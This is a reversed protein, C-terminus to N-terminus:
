EHINGTVDIVKINTFVKKIEQQLVEADIHENYPSYSNVAIMSLPFSMRSYLRKAAIFSSLDKLDVRINLPHNFVIGGTFALFGKKLKQWSSGTIAGPFYIWDAKEKLLRCIEDENGYITKIDTEVIDGNLCYAILEGGLQLQYPTTPVSAQYKIGLVQERIENINGAAAGVVLVVDTIKESLCISRRDLSGDILVTSCGLDRFVDILEEQEKLTAPGVIETDICDLTKYLWLSKGIVRFPLKAVGEVSTSNESYVHEFSTFYVDRPLSVSPKKDNTVLDIDEGDRGTTTVGAVPYQTGSASCRKLYWNLFTTKGANKSLGVVAVIKM